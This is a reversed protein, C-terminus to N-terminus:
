VRTSIESCINSPANRHALKSRSNVPQASLHQRLQRVGVDLVVERLQMASDLLEFNLPQTPESLDVAPPQELAVAVERRDCPEDGPELHRPSRRPLVNSESSRQVLHGRRTRRELLAVHGQRCRAHQCRRVVGIGLCKPLRLVGEDVGGPDVRHAVKLADRRVPAVRGCLFTGQGAVVAGEISLGETGRLGEQPPDSGVAVQVRLRALQEEGGEVSLEGGVSPRGGLAVFPRRRLAAGVREALYAALPQIERVTRGHGALAWVDREGYADLGELAEGARRALELVDPRDRQLGSM